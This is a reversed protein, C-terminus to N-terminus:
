TEKIEGRRETERKNDGRKEKEGILANFSSKSPERIIETACHMMGRLAALGKGKSKVPGERSCGDEDRQREEERTCVGRREMEKKMELSICLSYITGIAPDSM